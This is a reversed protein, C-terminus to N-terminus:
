VAHQAQFSAELLRLGRLAKEVAGVRWIMVKNSAGESPCLAWRYLPLRPQSQIPVPALHKSPVREARQLRHSSSMM